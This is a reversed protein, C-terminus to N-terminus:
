RTGTLSKLLGKQFEVYETNERELRRILILAMKAETVYKQYAIMGACFGAVAGIWFTTVTFICFVVGFDQM